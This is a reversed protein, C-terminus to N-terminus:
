QKELLAIEDNLAVIRDHLFRLHAPRPQDNRAELLWELRLLNRVPRLRRLEANIQSRTPRPRLHRRRRHYKM